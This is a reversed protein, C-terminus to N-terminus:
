IFLWLGVAALFGLSGGFWFPAAPGVTSWLLGALLSAPFLGIGVLTAHLGMFTGKAEVPALQSVFSKQVGETLGSHLGYLAFLGYLTGLSGARAFLIYVLGYVAYGTVLLRKAGFIDALRGVPYASIGYVINYVLYLLLVTGTAFGLNQVRLLLFQNSSNGLTFVLTILLFHKLRGDLQRWQTVIQPRNYLRKEKPERVMLLTGIGLAAPILALLFVRAYDGQYHSFLYYAFAIGVVAGMTDLARHLGFAAGQQNRDASEAILADRPATRIGKGFRDGVRAILVWGWTSAGLLILKSLGSSVYGFVALPKRKRMRDSYYGSFVKLLSALSEALGEILGVIAPSAGLRSVLFLPILPYVMESSIDTFFSTMGLLIVTLM